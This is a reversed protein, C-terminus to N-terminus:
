SMRGVLHVARCERDVARLCREDFDGVRVKYRKNCIHLFHPIKGDNVTKGERVLRRKRPIRVADPLPDFVVPM